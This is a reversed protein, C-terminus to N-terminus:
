RVTRVSSHSMINYSLITENGINIIISIPPSGPNTPNGAYMYNYMYIYM